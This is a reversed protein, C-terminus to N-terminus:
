WWARKIKAWCESKMTSHSTIREVTTLPVTPGAAAPRRPLREGAAATGYSRSGATVKATWVAPRCPAVLGGEVGVPFELHPIPRTNLFASTSSTTWSVYTATPSVCYCSESETPIRLAM